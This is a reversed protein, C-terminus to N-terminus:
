NRTLMKRGLLGTGGPTRRKPPLQKTPSITVEDTVDQKQIVDSEKNSTSNINLQNSLLLNLIHDLKKNADSEEIKKSQLEIGNSHIYDLILKHLKGNCYSALLHEREEESSVPINFELRVIDM